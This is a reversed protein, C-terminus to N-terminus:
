HQTLATKLLMHVICPLTNLHLLANYMHILNFESDWCNHCVRSSLKKKWNYLINYIHSSVFWISCWVRYCYRILEWSCSQMFDFMRIIHWEALCVCVCMLLLWKSHTWTVLVPELILLTIIIAVCTFTLKLIWYLLTSSTVHKTFVACISLFHTLKLINYALLEWVPTHSTPYSPLFSLKAMWKIRGWRLFFFSLVSCANRVPLIGGRMYFCSFPLAM